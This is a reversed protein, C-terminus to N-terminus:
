GGFTLTLTARRFAVAVAGVSERPLPTRVAIRLADGGTRGPAFASVIAERHAVGAPLAVIFCSAVCSSVLGAAPGPSDAGGSPHPRVKIFTAAVGSQHILSISAYGGALPIVMVATERMPNTRHGVSLAIAVALGSIEKGTAAILAEAVVVAPRLAVKVRHCAHALCMMAVITLCIIVFRSGVAPPAAVGARGAAVPARIRSSAAAIGGVAM